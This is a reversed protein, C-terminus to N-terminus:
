IFQGGVEQMMESMREAIESALTIPYGAFFRCGAAITGEAVM